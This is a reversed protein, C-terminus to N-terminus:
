SIAVCEFGSVGFFASICPGLFVGFLLFFALGKLTEFSSDQKTFHKIFVTALVVCLVDGVGNITGSTFSRLVSLFSEASFYAWVNGAFAGM